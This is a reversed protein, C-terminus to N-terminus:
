AVFLHQLSHIGLQGRLNKLVFPKLKRLRAGGDGTGSRDKMVELLNAIGKISVWMVDHLKEGFLHGGRCGHVARPRSELPSKRLVSKLSQDSPVGLIENHAGDTFTRVRLDHFLLAEM